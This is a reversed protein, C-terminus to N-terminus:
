CLGFIGRVLIEAPPASHEPEIEAKANGSILHMITNQISKLQRLDLVQPLPMPNEVNWSDQEPEM